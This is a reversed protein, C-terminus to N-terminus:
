ADRRAELMTTLLQRALQPDAQGRTARMVQGMLWGAIAAKGDVYQAVQGPHEELVQTVIAHLADKDSVQALGRQEIIKQPAQGGALMAALVDKATSHNIVGDEILGLLEVLREPPVQHRVGPIDLGTENMLRFLEGTVWNAAQKPDGGAAVAAEFYEAVARDAVLVGADHDPLGLDAIFRARRADPLEPMRARIEQVWARSVELPPLDPEPFYRYDSAGEKVRQVVTRQGAEDWGLTVQQVTGGSTLIETQRAIEYALAQCVARFSNLNKIETKTGLAEQGVPRLSINAECRMAGKEMDGSSVGLYRMLTRLKVLYAHAEDPTRFDPETVIELLPVGARNFDLLSADGVHYSKGADEELHARTIRVRKKLPQKKLPADQSAIEIWGDYALPFQYQSIQYNKPMDPYWYSKREWFTHQAIKCNLALGAMITYEVARRNAVPLAGPMGTCVPCVYTNPPVDGTDEVVACSCFMKSRTHLQVHVEMGIVAQYATM